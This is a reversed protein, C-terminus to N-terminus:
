QAVEVFKVTDGPLIAAPRETRATDWMKTTTTGILQWGGPSPQPYIGSFEGALGVAGAPINPRPSSLRPANGLPQDAVLYAFGPAFGGFAATWVAAQHKAVLSEASMGLAEAVQALDPGDYRVPIEITRHADNTSGVPQSVDIAAVRAAVDKPLARQTDLMILLTNAAPVLDIIGPLQWSSVAEKIRLVTFLADLGSSETDEDTIDILIAQEGCPNIQM